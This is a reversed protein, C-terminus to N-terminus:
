RVPGVASPSAIALRSAAADIDLTTTKGAHMTLGFSDWSRRLADLAAAAAPPDPAFIAVDDVWRAYRLRTADLARDGGVLVAEALIASAAPGAPLGRGGLAEFARLWRVIPGIAAAAAGCAHLGAELVEPGISGYCDHVDTVAVSGAERLYADIRRGWRARQPAWPRVAIGTPGVRDVGHAFTAPGRSREISVALPAVLRSYALDDRTTLRVLRRMGGGPKPVPEWRIPGRPGPASVNRPGTM